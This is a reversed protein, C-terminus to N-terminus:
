IWAVESSFGSQGASNMWSFYRNTSQHALATSHQTTRTRLWASDGRELRGFARAHRRSLGLGGHEVPWAVAHYGRTAKLQLWDVLRGILADEEDFSLNHFVAVDFDGEGWVFERTERRDFHADLWTEAEAVFDDVSIDPDIRTDTM